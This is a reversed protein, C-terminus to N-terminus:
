KWVFQVNQGAHERKMETHRLGAWGTGISNSNENIKLVNKDSFEHSLIARVIEM